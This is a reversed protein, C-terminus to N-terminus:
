PTAGVQQQVRGLADFSRTIARTLTGGPDKVEEAIRNGANDLTYTISNGAQDTVKKLRHAPDWTFQVTTADPLTLTLLQGAPDYDYVSRQGGVTSTLLRMRLDYTNATLVGNADTMSLVQGHKNYQTYLTTQNLANKVSALDGRTHDATTDAYYVYTTTDDLDTRPGKATLVRGYADYTWSRQRNAIGAQLTYGFGLHGDVDTTSQEVQKCVVAIPKGDPLLATPPACSATAGGNFPDPQGNYVWTTVKKPEARKTEGRWDPHWTSSVKRSGTPLAANAAMVTSCTTGGPLGEARSTQLNRVPDYAYCTRTGNFDDASAINGNSDSALASTAAACGSGASQSQTLLRREGDPGPEWTLVSQSAVNPMTVTTSGYSSPSSVSVTYKDVGGARETSVPVGAYVNSYIFTSVRVNNEDVVGTLLNPHSVDVGVSGSENYLYRKTRGDPYSVQAVGGYGNGTYDIRQGDPLLVSSVAGSTPNRTYTLTRGWSADTVTHTPGTRLYTLSKGDPFVRRLLTGTADFVYFGGSPTKLTWQTAGAVTAVSLAPKAMAASSFTNTPGELFVVRSGDGMFVWAEPQPSAPQSQLLPFSRAQEIQPPLVGNPYYGEPTILITGTLDSVALPLGSNRGTFDILGMGIDGWSSRGGGASSYDRRVRLLGDQSSYDTDSQVKVQDIPDIPNGVVPKPSVSCSPPDPIERQCWLKYSITQTRQSTVYTTGGTAGGWGGERPCVLTGYAAISAGGMDTVTTSAPVTGCAPTYSTALNSSTMLFTSQGNLIAFGGAAINAGTHNAKYCGSRCEQVAPSAMCQDYLQNIGANWGAIAEDATRYRGTYGCDWVCWIWAADRNETKAHAPPAGCLVNLVLACLLLWRMVSAGPLPRSVCVAANRGPREVGEGFKAM